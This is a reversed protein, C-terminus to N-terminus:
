HIVRTGQQCATFQQPIIKPLSSIVGARFNPVIAIDILGDSVLSGLVLSLPQQQGILVRRMLEIGFGSCFKGQLQPSHLPYLTGVQHPFDVGRM